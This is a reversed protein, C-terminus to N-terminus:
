KAGNGWNKMVYLCNDASGRFYHATLDAERAQQVARNHNAMLENFRVNLKTVFDSDKEFGYFRAKLLECEKPLIVDIGFKGAVGIWYEVSPREKEYEGDAAMDVGWIGITKYGDFIAMAIMYSISNTFYPVIKNAECWAVMERLPYTVAAPIDPQPEVFYIPRDPLQDRLWDVHEIKRIIPRADGMVVSRPDVRVDQMPAYERFNHHMEFWRDWRPIDFASYINNLTWIEWAPNDFPALRMSSPAFGVIAVADTRKFRVPQPATPTQPKQAETDESLQWNLLQERTLEEM